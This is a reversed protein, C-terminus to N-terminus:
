GSTALGGVCWLPVDSRAISLAVQMPKADWGRFEKRLGSGREIMPPLVTRARQTQRHRKQM